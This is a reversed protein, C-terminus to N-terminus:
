NLLLWKALWEATDTPALFEMSGTGWGGVGQDHLLGKSMLESCAHRLVSAPYRPLRETLIIPQGPELVSMPRKSISLVRTGKFPEKCLPSRLAEGLIKLQLIDLDAVILLAMESEEIDKKEVLHKYIINSFISRKESARTHIAKDMATMVIDHLNEENFVPVSEISGLRKSLEQFMHEVRAQQIKSGRGALLMDIPGGVYPIAQITARLTTISAYKEAAAELSKNLKDDM